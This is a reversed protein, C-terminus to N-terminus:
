HALSDAYYMHREDPSWGLGNALGVPSVMTRVGGDAELRYLAGADPRTDRAMTGAWFRGRSDCKGDNMRNEPRDAEIAALRRLHSLDRDCIWFGDEAAMVLGGSRRLSVAGVMMPVPWSTDLGTQPEFEHILRGAIDVWILRGREGDWVPGEGIEARADVLLEVDQDAAM